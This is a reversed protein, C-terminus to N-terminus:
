AYNSMLHMAGKMVGVTCETVDGNVAFKAIQAAAGIIVGGILAPAVDAIRKHAFAIQYGAFIVAVTVVIISASNLITKTNTFFGCVKAQADGVGDAAFALDPIFVAAIVALMLTCTFLPHKTQAIAQSFPPLAM